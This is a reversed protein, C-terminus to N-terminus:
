INFKFVMIPKFGTSLDDLNMTGSTDLMEGDLFGSSDSVASEMRLVDGTSRPLHSRDFSCANNEDDILSLEELEFSDKNTDSTCKLLSKPKKMKIKPQILSEQDSQSDEEDLSMQRQIRLCKKNHTNSNRIEAERETDASKLNKLDLKAKRVREWVSSANAFVQDPSPHHNNNNESNEGCFEDTGDSFVDEDADLAVSNKELILKGRKRRRPRSQNDLFAKNEPELISQTSSTDKQISNRFTNVALVSYVARFFTMTCAPQTVTLTPPTLVRELNRTADRIRQLCKLVIGSFRPCDTSYGSLGRYGGHGADILECLERQKKIFNDLMERNHKSDRLFREPIRTLPDNSDNGLGLNLLVEEPDYSLTALVEQLKSDMEPQLQRPSPSHLHQAKAM